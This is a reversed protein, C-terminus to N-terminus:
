LARQEQVHPHSPNSALPLISRLSQSLFPLVGVPEYLQQTFLKPSIRARAPPNRRRGGKTSRYNSVHDLSTM